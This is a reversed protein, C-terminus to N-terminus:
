RVRLTVTRSRSGLYGYGRQSPVFARVKLRVGPRRVRLRYTGSFRGNRGTRLNKFPTWAAGPSRGEMVIRNGAKLIPGSLVKGTFRLVSGRLSARIRSAARVRVKLARSVVWKDASPRHAVRVTRSPRTTLLVASFSGDANTKVIKRSVERAGRGDRRELVEILSGAAGPRSSQTLRGRISVRRGYPVTVSSRSTSNFRADIKYDAAALSPQTAQNAVEVARDGHVEKINGAADRVRVTLRHPGNSVMRTDIRMNGDESAPCVTFGSHACRAQLDNSAVVTEGLLVDVRSLGSHADSASYALTRVGRQAGDELLSGSPRLIVPPEDESLTVEMGRILLPVGDAPICPAPSVVGGAPGCQMNVGVGTTDPQFQHEAVVNESGPPGNFLGTHSFGDARMDWSSFYMPQGSGALRAAYWLVLKVFGIQSHPGLRPRHLSIGGGDGGGIQGSGGVTVAFGGGTACADVMAVNPRPVDWAQWPYLPSSPHGPVSCNRMVYTGATAQQSGVMALAVALITAFLGTRARQVRPRRSNGRERWCTRRKGSPM